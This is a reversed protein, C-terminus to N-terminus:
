TTITARICIQYGLIERVVGWNQIKIPLRNLIRNVIGGGTDGWRLAVSQATIQLGFSELLSHADATTFWRMHTRDFIGRDRQPFTGDLFISKFVSVHRINPISIVISGGRELHECAQRLCQRPEILHELVDSFIICDFFIGEFADKWALSNLDANVVHPLYTSAEKAFNSDYEIGSVRRGAVASMLSRGLAGNSCGVDLINKAHIPVMDFVDRRPTTYAAERIKSEPSLKTSIV